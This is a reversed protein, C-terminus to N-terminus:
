QKNMNAFTFTLTIGSEKATLTLSASTATISGSGSYTTGAITQENVAFTTASQLTVKLAAVSANTSTLLDMGLVKADDSSQYFKLGWNTYTDGDSDVGNGRYTNYYKARVQTECNTGEFAYTCTCKGDACTGGNQCVVDKCEDKTCSTYTIASFAGITLLTSLAVNRFSKMSFM